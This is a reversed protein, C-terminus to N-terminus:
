PHVAWCGMAMWIFNFSTEENELKIYLCRLMNTLKGQRLLCTLISIWLNDNDVRSKFYIMLDLKSLDKAIKVSISRNLIICFILKSNKSKLASMSLSFRPFNFEDILFGWFSYKGQGFIFIEVRNLLYLQIIVM